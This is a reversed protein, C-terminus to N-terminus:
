SVVLARRYISLTWESATLRNVRPRLVSVPGLAVLDDHAACVALRGEAADGLMQVLVLARLRCDVACQAVFPELSLVLAVVDAGLLDDLALLTSILQLSPQTEQVAFFTQLLKDSTLLARDLHFPEFPVPVITHRIHLLEDELM